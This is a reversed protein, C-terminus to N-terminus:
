WSPEAALAYFNSTNSTITVKTINGDFITEYDLGRETGNQAFSTLNGITSDTANLYVSTRTYRTGDILKIGVYYQDAFGNDIETVRQFEDSPGTYSLIHDFKDCSVTMGSLVDVTDEVQGKEGLIMPSGIVNYLNNGRSLLQYGNYAEPALYYQFAVVQPYIDHFQIWSVGDASGASYMRLVNSGYFADLQSTNGILFQLPTNQTRTLDIYQATGVDSFTMDLGDSISDFSQDVHTGAVSGFGPANSTDIAEGNDSQSTNGSFFFPLISMVMIVALFIAVLKTNM